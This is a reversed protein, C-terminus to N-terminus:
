IGALEGPSYLVAFAVAVYVLGSGLDPEAIVLM